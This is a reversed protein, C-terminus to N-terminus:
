SPFFQDFYQVILPETRIGGDVDPNANLHGVGAAVSGVADIPVEVALTPLALVEGGKPTVVANKLVFAPLPKDPRGRPEGITFLMPQVVNGAKAYSEALKRDTNLNEEASKLLAVFEGMQGGAAGAGEAPANRQAIELLKVVYQYGPDIQPESLLITNAIVKAKAAALQDTMKALVERSWPWRGIRDLSERDIAIIAINKAPERSTARVGLDYAKRELSRVLDSSLNFVIIAIAVVVGLLWDARLFELKKM